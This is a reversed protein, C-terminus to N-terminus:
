AVVLVTVLRKNVREYNDDHAVIIGLTKYKSKLSSIVDGYCPNSSEIYSNPEICNNYCMKAMQEKDEGVIILDAYDSDEICDTILSIFHRLFGKNGVLARYSVLIARPKM